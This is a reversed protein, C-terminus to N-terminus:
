GLLGGDEVEALLLGFRVGPQFGILVLELVLLWVSVAKFCILIKKITLPILDIVWCGFPFKNNVKLLELLGIEVEGLWGGVPLLLVITIVLSCILSSVLEAM